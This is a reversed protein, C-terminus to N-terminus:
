FMHNIQTNLCGIEYNEIQLLLLYKRRLYEDPRGYIRANSDAIINGIPSDITPVKNPGESVIIIM